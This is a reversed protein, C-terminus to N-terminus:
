LSLASRLVVNAEDLSQKKILGDKNLAVRHVFDGKVFVSLIFFGQKINSERTLFGGEKGFHRLRQEALSVGLRGHYCDSSGHM